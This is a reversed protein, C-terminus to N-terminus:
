TDHICHLGKAFLDFIYPATGFGFPLFRDVWYADECHFRLLWTDRPAIPIHSLAEQLDRMLLITGPGQAVVLSIAEYLTVYGLAAWDFPMYDNVWSGRM